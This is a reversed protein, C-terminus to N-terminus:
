HLLPHGSGRGLGRGRSRESGTQYSGNREDFARKTARGDDTESDATCYQRIHGSEGCKWCVPNAFSRPKHKSSEAQAQNSGEVERVSNVSSTTSDHNTASGPQKDRKNSKRRNVSGDGSTKKSDTSTSPKNSSVPGGQGLAARVQSNVPFLVRVAEHAKANM